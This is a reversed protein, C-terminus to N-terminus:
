KKGRLGPVPLCMMFFPKWRFILDLLSVIIILLILACITIIPISLSCIMGINVGGNSCAGNGPDLDKHLPFPLVARILDGLGMGKARQIQGCLMDSVVFATNKNHKRLGAASTDAPLTIRVPRAPADADFFNALQFKQTPESLVEPHLPGCDRNMYVCRIVFWGPDGATARLTDRLQLAFSLPPTEPEPRADLARVVAATLRDLAEAAIQGPPLTSGSAPDPLLEDADAAALTAFHSYPGDPQLAQNIGALLFHFGPWVANSANATAYTLDTGELGDRVASTRIARLAAALSVAAPKAASGGLAATLSASMATATLTQHLAQRQPSLGAPSGVTEIVTWLDPLHEALYDAFDLLILWSQMQWGQNAALVAAPLAANAAETVQTRTTHVSAVMIKWPEAVDFRFAMMRASKSPTATTAAPPLIAAIQGDIPRSETRDIAAGLYDERRAVPIFGTWMNRRYGGPDDHKLAVMPLVEEGAMLGAEAGKAIRLWRGTNGTKAMAFERTEDSNPTAPLLRRVVFGIDTTGGAQAARDPLGAIGCVLSSAVMYFRQHAPQFLKLPLTVPQAREIVAVTDATAALATKPRALARGLTAAIVRRPLPVRPPAEPEPPLHSRWTEPRALFDGIRQPDRELMAFLQEMFDDRAFRLIAPRAQDAGQDFRSWLPTPSQWKVPHQTM